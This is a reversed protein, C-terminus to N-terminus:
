FEGARLRQLGRRAFRLPAPSCRCTGRAAQALRVLDYQRDLFRLYGAQTTQPM